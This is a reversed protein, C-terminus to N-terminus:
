PAHRALAQRITRECVACYPQGPTRMKCDPQPRYLDKSQYRAGEYAGVEAGAPAPQGQRQTPLPTTPKVLDAWKLHARDATTSVNPEDAVSDGPQGAAEYEDALDFLSHGLEHLCIETGWTPECSFVTAAGGSGGYNPTNVIVLALASTDFLQNLLTAARQQDILIVRGLSGGQTKARFATDQAFDGGLGSM